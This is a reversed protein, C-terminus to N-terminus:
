KKRTLILANWSHRCYPRHSGDALTLWGGRRDWVSYGLRASMAEIDSRSWVKTKSLQMMRACFPRNRSDEPGAYEYRLVIETTTSQEGGPIKSLPETLTRETTGLISTKVSLLGDKVLSDLVRNVVKVDVKLTEALVEPTIRKDKSILDLVNAQLKDISEQVAFYHYDKAPAVSLVEFQERVDGCKEFERLLIEDQDAAFQLEDETNPNDDVGLLVNVDEDSFGFSGKLMLAAEEKSISGAKYKRKIRELQQFQRGTMNALNSNVQSVPQQGQPLVESDPEKGLIERIENRSLNAAVIAEGFEFKLPEVPIINYEGTIGQLSFLMNFIEEHEQQRENVYTNNFIEYADRIESRGGLQGETKIGFLMPSTIQHSAFIEQQILNNVNTFDEKTLSTTGLDIIDIANEKSSNFALVFRDGSSNAFKRKMEQEVIEQEEEQPMGSNLNILKTPTFNNKANGLIHRSVEVDAAIYNLGQFYSPLPYVDSKPNYQKVYLIQPKGSFEAPNFADYEREKEKFRSASWDDKVFFKTLEKNTRVKHFEIHYVEAIQGLANPIIQLYYGGYLEDDLMCRKVIANWKEYRNAKKPVDKFGKGFIYNVKGKVIAGHKPSENFLELLYKPYQNEEGFEVYGKGKKETYVPQKAQDFKIRVIFNNKSM